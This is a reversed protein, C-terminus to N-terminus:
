AKFAAVIKPIEVTAIDVVLAVIEEASLEASEEKIAPLAKVVKVGEVIITTATNLALKLNDIGPM